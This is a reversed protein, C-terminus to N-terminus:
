LDTIQPIGTFTVFVDIITNFLKRKINFMDSFNIQIHTKGAHRSWTNSEMSPIKLNKILEKVSYNDM